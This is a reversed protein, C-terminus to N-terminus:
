FILKGKIDSEPILGIFRSDMANHRNDGLVFYYNNKFTHHTLIQNRLYVKGGPELRIEGEEFEHKLILYGYLMSNLSDLSISMGESPIKYPGYNAQNWHQYHMDYPFIPINNSVLFKEAQLIKKDHLLRQVTRPKLHIHLQDKGMETFLAQRGERSELHMPINYDRFDRSNMTTSTLIKYGYQVSDPPQIYTKNCFLSDNRIELLEGPMGQCRFTFLSYNGDPNYYDFLLVDNRKVPMLNKLWGNINLGFINNRLSVGWKYSGAPLSGEMAPSTITYLHIFFIYIILLVGSPVILAWIWKKHM